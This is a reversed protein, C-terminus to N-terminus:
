CRLLKKRPKPSTLFKESCLGMQQKMRLRLPPPSITKFHKRSIPRGKSETSSDMRTFSKNQGIDM